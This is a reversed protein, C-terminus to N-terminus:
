RPRRYVRLGCTEGAAVYAADPMRGHGLSPVVHALYIGRRPGVVTWLTARREFALSRTATAQCDASREYETGGVTVRDPLRDWGWFGFQVNDAFAVYSCIAALLVAALAAAMWKMRSSM